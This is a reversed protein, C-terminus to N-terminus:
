TTLANLAGSLTSQLPLEFGWGSPSPTTFSPAKIEERPLACFGGQDPAVTPPPTPPPQSPPPLLLSALSPSGVRLGGRLAGKDNLPSCYSYLLLLFQPLITHTHTSKWAQFDKADAYLLTFTLTYCSM